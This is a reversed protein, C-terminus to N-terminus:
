TQQASCHSHTALIFITSCRRSRQRSSIFRKNQRPWTTTYKSRHQVLETNQKGGICPCVASSTHRYRTNVCQAPRPHPVSHIPSPRTQQQTCRCYRYAPTRIEKRQGFGSHCVRSPSLHWGSALTCANYMYVPLPCVLLSTRGVPSSPAFPSTPGCRLPRVLPLPCVLPSSPAVNHQLVPRRAALVRLVHERAIGRHLRPLHFNGDADWHM